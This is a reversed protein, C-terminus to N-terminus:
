CARRFLSRGPARMAACRIREDCRVPGPVRMPACRARVARQAHACASRIRARHGQEIVYTVAFYGGYCLMFIACTVGVTGGPCAALSRWWTLSWGCPLLRTRWVWSCRSCLSSRRSCWSRACIIRRSTGLESLIRCNNGSDSVGSLQQITLIAACAVVLVFGIYIALYSILGNMSNTSEYSQARTAEMGWIASESGDANLKIWSRDQRVYGETEDYTLGERYDGLFYSAYLPLGSADVLEDPVVITGSNSGMPSNFFSSAAEDVHDAVPRLTRGGLEVEVGERM